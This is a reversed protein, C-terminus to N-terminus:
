RKAMVDSTVVRVGALSETGKTMRAWSNLSTTNAELMCLPATGAAVAKVLEMLSVVEASYTTRFSTNDAKAPGEMVIKPVAVPASLAAEAAAELGNAQLEEAAKIQADEAAKRASAELTKKENEKRKEEAKYWKACREGTLDIAYNLPEDIVKGQAIIAQRQKKSAEDIPDFWVHFAKKEDRANQNISDALNYSAQDVVVIEDAKERITLSKIVVENQKENELVQLEMISGKGSKHGAKHNVPATAGDSM